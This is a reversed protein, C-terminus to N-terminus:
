QRLYFWFNQLRFCHFSFSVVLLKSVLDSAVSSTDSEDGDIRNSPRSLPSGYLAVDHARELGKEGTADRVTGSLAELQNEVRCVADMMQSIQQRLLVCEEEREDVTRSLIETGRLRAQLLVNDTKLASIDELTLTM